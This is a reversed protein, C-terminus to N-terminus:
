QESWTGADACASAAAPGLRRQRDALLRTRANM